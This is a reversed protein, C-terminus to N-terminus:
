QYYVMVTEGQADLVKVWDVRANIFSHRRGLYVKKVLTGIAQNTGNGFMVALRQNTKLKKTPLYTIAGQSNVLKWGRTSIIQRTRNVFTMREKQVDSDDSSKASWFGIRRPYETQRSHQVYEVVSVTYITRYEDPESSRHFWYVWDSSRPTYGLSRLYVTTGVPIHPHLEDEQFSTSYVNNAAFKLTVVQRSANEEDPTNRTVRAPTLPEYHPHDVFGQITCEQGAYFIPDYESFSVSDHFRDDAKQVATPITLMNGKDRKRFTCTESTLLEFDDVGDSILLTQPGFVDVIELHTYINDGAYAPSALFSMSASFFCGITLLIKRM